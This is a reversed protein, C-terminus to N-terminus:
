VGRVKKKKNARLTENENRLRVIEEACRALLAGVSLFKLETTVTFDNVHEPLQRIEELLEDTVKSSM